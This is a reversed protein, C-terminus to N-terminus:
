CGSRDEVRRMFSTTCRPLRAFQASRAPAQILDVNEHLPEEKVINILTPLCSVVFGARFCASSKECGRCVCVCDRGDRQTLEPSTATFFFQASRTGHQRDADVGIGVVLSACVRVVVIVGGDCRSFGRVMWRKHAIQHSRDTKGHWCPTKSV